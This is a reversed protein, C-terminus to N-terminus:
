RGALFEDEAPYDFFQGFYPDNDPPLIRSPDGSRAASILWDLQATVTTAYDGVPQYGLAVAASTDLVVPHASDWPTRGLPQDDLLAETWDHVLHRAVIRSIGLATPADPDAINLIRTGPNHAVTEVLAAINAAATTHVIGNGRRRLLISRRGDLIRKVFVWERPRRNGVGHVRSPRLVTIPLGSDLSIQEAAVKNAGYGARSNYDIDSPPMTPASEDLPGDFRPEIDSNSHNGASDIYVAKSSLLVTSGADRALEVLARADDATYCVCDVLLDVGAALERNMDARDAAIFGVGATHLEAPLSTRGTARVQWGAAALRLAIARGIVGSGGVILAHPM